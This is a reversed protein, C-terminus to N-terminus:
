RAPPRPLFGSVRRKYDEYDPYRRSMSRELLAKGSLNYLFHIMLLPSLITLVGWQSELAILTLGTWV